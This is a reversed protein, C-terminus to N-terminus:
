CISDSVVCIVVLCSTCYRYIWWLVFNSVLILWSNLIRLYSLFAYWSVMELEFDLKRSPGFYPSNGIPHGQGRLSVFLTSFSVHNLNIHHTLFLIMSVWVVLSELWSQLFIYIYEEAKNKPWHFCEDLYLQFLHSIIIFLLLLLLLLLLRLCVKINELCSFIRAFVDLCFICLLTSRNGSWKKRGKSWQKNKHKMAQRMLVCPLLPTILSDEILNAYPCILMCLNWEIKFEKDVNCFFNSCSLNRVKASYSWNWIYCYVIGAWSLCYSPPVQFVISLNWEQLNFNKNM